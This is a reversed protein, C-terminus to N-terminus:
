MWSGFALWYYFGGFAFLPCIHLALGGIKSVWKRNKNKLQILESITCVVNILAVIPLLFRVVVNLNDHTLYLDFLLFIWFLIWYLLAAIGIKATM